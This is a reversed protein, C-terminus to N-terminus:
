FIFIKSSFSLGLVFFLIFPIFGTFEVFMEFLQIVSQNEIIQM